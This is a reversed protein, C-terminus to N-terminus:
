RSALKPYRTSELKKKQRSLRSNKLNQSIFTEQLYWIEIKYSEHKTKSGGQYQPLGIESEQM